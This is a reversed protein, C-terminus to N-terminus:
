EVAERRKRDLYGRPHKRHWEWATAVIEELGPRQPTWGLVERARGPRAVLVPPDGPRRPAAEVRVRSGTVKEVASVVELVSAGKGTGLNFAGGPHGERLRMVAAAHADALDEVHVFDRVCTGDPTPYDAGFIRLPPGESAAALALPVLHTEPDHHEGLSGDAAAGAANFYRFRFSRIAGVSHLDELMEECAAKTRGYPNVPGRAATEPIRKARPEGYVACSSSLVFGPVGCEVAATLLSLTGEVNNRWYKLPDRVSEGVYADAAFHLIADFRRSRLIRRLAEGDQVRAEVLPVGPPVAQRHGKSLDDVVVVAMGRSALARVAFSGVYGAGGTVLVAGGRPPSM